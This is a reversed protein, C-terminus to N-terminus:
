IVGLSIMADRHSHYTTTAFNQKWEADCIIKCYHTHTAQTHGYTWNNKTVTVDKIANCLSIIANYAATEHLKGEQISLSVIKLKKRETATFASSLYLLVDELLLLENNNNNIYITDIEKDIYQVYVIPM